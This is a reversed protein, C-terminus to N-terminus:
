ANAMNLLVSVHSPVGAKCWSALDKGRLAALEEKSVMNHKLCCELNKRYLDVCEADTAPKVQRTAVGHGTDYVLIGPWGVRFTNGWPTGRGVYVTNEPLPKNDTIRYHKPM